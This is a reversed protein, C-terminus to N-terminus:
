RSGVRQGAVCARLRVRQFVAHKRLNALDPDRRLVHFNRYGREIAQNLADAAHRLQRNLSYFCALNYWVIPDTPRLQVLQRTVRLGNQFDGCHSYDTSLIQLAEAYSPDRVVLAEM